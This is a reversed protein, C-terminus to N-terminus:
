ESDEVIAEEPVPFYAETQKPEEYPLIAYTSAMFIFAFVIKIYWPKNTYWALSKVIDTRINIPLKTSSTEQINNIGYEWVLGKEKDQDSSEIVNKQVQQIQKKKKYHELWILIYSIPLVIIISGVLKKFFVAWTGYSFVTILLDYGVYLTAIVIMGGVLPKAM